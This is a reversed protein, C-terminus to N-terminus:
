PGWHRRLALSIRSDSQIGVHPSLKLVAMGELETGDRSM